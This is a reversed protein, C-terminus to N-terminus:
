DPAAAAAVIEHEYYVQETEDPDHGTVPAPRVPVAAVATKTDGAAKHTAEREFSFKRTVAFLVMSAGFAAFFIGPGADKLWFKSTGYEAGGSANNVVGHLFLDYGMWMSAGGVLVAMFLIAGKIWVIALEGWGRNSLRLSFV